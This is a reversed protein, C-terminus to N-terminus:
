RVIVSSRVATQSWRFRNDWIVLQPGQLLPHGQESMISRSRVLRLEGILQTIGMGIVLITGLLTLWDDIGLKTHRLHRSYFRACVAAIALLPLVVALAAVKAEGEAM